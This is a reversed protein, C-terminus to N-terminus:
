FMFSFCVLLAFVFVLLPSLSFTISDSPAMKRGCRPLVKGNLLGKIQRYPSSNLGNLNSLFMLAKLLYGLPAFSSPFQNQNGSSIMNNSQQTALWKNSRTHGAAGCHHCLHQKKQKSKQTNGKKARHNKIEKKDQKPPAELISKGKDVNESAFVNQMTKLNLM